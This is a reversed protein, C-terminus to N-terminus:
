EILPLLSVFMSTTPLKVPPVPEPRHTSIAYRMCSTSGFLTLFRLANNKIGSLASELLLLKQKQIDDYKEHMHEIFEQVESNSLYEDYSYAINPVLIMLVFITKIM